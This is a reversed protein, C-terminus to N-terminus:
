KPLSRIAVPRTHTALSRMGNPDAEADPSHERKAFISEMVLVIAGDHRLSALTSRVSRGATGPINPRM